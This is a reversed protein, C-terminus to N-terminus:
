KCVTAPETSPAMLEALTYSIEVPQGSISVGLASFSVVGKVTITVKTRDLAINKLTDANILKKSMLATPNINIPIIFTSFAKAKLKGKTTSAVKSVETGNILISFSYGDIQAEIDSNNKFDIAFNIDIGTASIKGVKSKKINYNYCYSMAKDLQKKAFVGMGVLLAIVVIAIIIGKKM